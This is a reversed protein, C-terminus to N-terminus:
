GVWKGNKEKEKRNMEMETKKAWESCKTRALSKDNMWVHLWWTSFEYLFFSGSDLLRWEDDSGQSKVCAIIYIVQSFSARMRMRLAGRKRWDRTGFKWFASLLYPPSSTLALCILLYLAFSSILFPYLRLWCLWCPIHLLSLSSRSRFLFFYSHVFFLSHTLPPKLTLPNLTKNTHHDRFHTYNWLFGQM